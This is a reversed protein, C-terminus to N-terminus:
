LTSFDKHYNYYSFQFTTVRLYKKADNVKLFIAYDSRNYLSHALIYSFHNM